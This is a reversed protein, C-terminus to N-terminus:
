IAGVIVGATSPASGIGIPDPIDSSIVVPSTTSTGSRTTFSYTPDEIENDYFQAEGQFEAPTTGAHCILVSQEALTSSSSEGYAPDYELQIVSGTVSLDAIYSHKFYTRTGTDTHVYKREIWWDGALIATPDFAKRQRTGTAVSQWTIQGKAYIAEADYLPVVAVASSGTTETVSLIKTDWAIYAMMGREATGPEPTSWQYPPAEGYEVSATTSFGDTGFGNTYGGTLAKDETARATGGRAWTLDLGSMSWGGCTLTLSFYASGAALDQYRGSSLGITETSVTGGFVASGYGPTITRTQPLGPHETVEVRCVKIDDRIYFVYFPANCEFLNSLKPTTKALLNTSWDPEALCWAGRNLAWDVPGDVITHACSWVPDSSGTPTTHGIAIRHHTSRMASKIADQQFEENGVIDATLGSWNWHWGYGMSWGAVAPISGSAISKNASDPLCTSLIYAEIRELDVPTLGRDPADARLYKRLAEACPTGVLPYVTLETTPNFLWHRGTQPDLYVGSSTTLDVQPYSTEDGFRRYANIKLAPAINNGILPGLGPFDNLTGADQPEGAANTKFTYLPRGYMAQVYLRCRGTFVSAPCLVATLKKLMLNEDNDVPVWVAPDTSTDEVRAPSFSAAAQADLPVSGRLRSAHRLQGAVQGASTNAPNIRRGTVPDLETFAANYTATSSAEYLVGPAFTDPNLDSISLIDVIGTDMDMLCPAGSIRIYEQDGAIRVHVEADPLVFKQSAAYLGTARLAKIRSRAFPLYQEGALILKHEM